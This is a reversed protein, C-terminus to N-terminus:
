STIIIIIIDYTDVEPDREHNKRRRRRPVAARHDDNADGAPAARALRDEALLQPLQELVAAHGHDREREVHVVAVSRVDVGVAAAVPVPRLRERRGLEGFM